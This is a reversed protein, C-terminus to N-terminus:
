RPPPPVPKEGDPQVCASLDFLLFALAKEQPTLEGDTCGDPVPGTSPANSVHLDSYVVRGCQQPGPAGVPTNFSFYKTNNKYIWRQSLTPDSTGVSHTVGDLNIQGPVTSAGTNELWGAFAWGKPFSTDVSYPTTDRATTTWDAVKKFDPPGYQFWAYHFHTAFIRGGAEAYEHMADMYPQKDQLHEECECSLIVMDYQKLTSASSWLATASPTPTSLAAGERGQYIHVRGRGGEPSGPSVFERSDIGMKKLLCQLSDCGGTTLAIKPLHGEHRGRPLRTLEKDTIPNDRCPEVNPITVERRWKGVQIVLPISPGVPVDKLVFRGKEDTLATAMPAGSVSASCLQCTAGDEIPEVSANPVYVIANYLPLKGSPDYVTGSISTAPMDGCQARRCKLGTCPGSSSSDASGGFGGDRDTFGGQAANDDDDQHFGPGQTAACGVAFLFSLVFSRANPM